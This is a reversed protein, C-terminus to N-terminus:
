TEYLVVGGPTIIFFFRDVASIIHHQLFYPINHHINALTLPESLWWTIYYERWKLFKLSKYRNTGM